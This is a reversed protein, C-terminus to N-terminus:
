HMKFKHKERTLLGNQELLELSRYVSSRSMKLRRALEAMGFDLKVLGTEDAQSLLFEYLKQETNGASFTDMRRNLFRIRDSLHSIYRFAVEPCTRMMDRLMAETAYCVKCPTSAVISSRGQWSGFVGAAGFIEGAGISRVTVCDGGETLRLIKASGSLLLGVSGNRYLEGGKAIEEEPSLKALLADRRRPELGAFLFCDM